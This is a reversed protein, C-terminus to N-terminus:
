AAERLTAGIARLSDLFYPFRWLTKLESRKPLDAEDERFRVDLKADRKEIWASGGRDRM